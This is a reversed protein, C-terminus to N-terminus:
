FSQWSHKFLLEIIREPLDKISKDKNKLLYSNLYKYDSDLEIFSSELTENNDLFHIDILFYALMKGVYWELHMWLNTYENIFDGSHVIKNRHSYIRVLQFEISSQSNNIRNLLFEQKGESLPRALELHLFGLLESTEKIPDFNKITSSSRM